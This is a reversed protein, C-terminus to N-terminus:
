GKYITDAQVFCLPNGWPDGCYFSREGWPRVMPNNGPTGHVSQTSLCNLTAARQHIEDLNDVVFYLAKPVLHPPDIQIVQLTVAGAKFYCRSGAQLRGEQGLLTAYFKVAEALDGVEINLRFLSPSPNRKDNM